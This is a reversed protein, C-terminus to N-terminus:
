ARRGTMGYRLFRIMPIAGTWMITALRKLDRVRFGGIRIRLARETVDVGENWVYLAPLATLLLALVTLPHLLGWLSGEARTIITLLLLTQPTLWLGCLLSRYPEPLRHRSIVRNM